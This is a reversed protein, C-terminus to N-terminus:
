SKQSIIIINQNATNNDKNHLLHSLKLLNWKMDLTLQVYANYRKKQRIIRSNDSM